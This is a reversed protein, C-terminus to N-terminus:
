PKVVSYYLTMFRENKCQGWKPMLRLFQISVIEAEKKEGFRCFLDVVTPVVSNSSDNVSEFLVISRNSSNVEM